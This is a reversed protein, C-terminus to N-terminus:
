DSEKGSQREIEAIARRLRVQLTAEPNGLAVDKPPLGVGKEGGQVILNDLTNAVAVIKAIQPIDTIQYPFGKGDVREHHYKVAPIIEGLEPIQALLKEGAYIHEEKATSATAIKGIDHLLASLQVQSVDHANMGMHQALISAYNAVRESHGQISLDKMEVALVLAKVMSVLLRKARETASFSVMALGSQIGIISVIELDEQTFPNSSLKELYMVGDYKPMKILPACIVSRINGTGGTADSTLIPRTYQIARKIITKSILPRQPAPEKPYSAHISLKETKKDIFIIYGTTATAIPSLSNIIRELLVQSSKESAIIRAIEYVTSLHRSVAKKGVFDARHKKEEETDLQIEITDTGITEDGTPVFKRSSDPISEPIEEKIFAFSCSGITIISGSILKEGDPSSPIKMGNVITGNKSNLDRIFYEVSGALNLKTFIESHHRSCKANDSLSLDCDSERGIVFKKGEPIDRDATGFSADPCAPLTIYKTDEPSKGSIIKLYSM